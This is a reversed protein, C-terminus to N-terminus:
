IEGLDNFFIPYNNFLEFWCMRMLYSMDPHAAPSIRLRFIHRWERINATMILETKLSLPLVSRAMQPAVKSEVLNQYTRELQCCTSYWEETENRNLFTPAIVEIDDYKVYRTSEQSFSCLRHRVLENAIARDTVIHFTFSQHELVSEHGKTILRKIFKEPDGKPESKYCIRGAKEILMLVTEYQPNNLLKVSPKIVKM